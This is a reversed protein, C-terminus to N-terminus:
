DQASCDEKAMEFLQFGQETQECNLGELIEAVGTMALLTGWRRLTAVAGRRRLRRNLPTLKEILNARKVPSQKPM